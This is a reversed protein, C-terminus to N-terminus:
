RGDATDRQRATSRRRGTPQTSGREDGVTFADHVPQPTGLGAAAMIEALTEPIAGTIRWPDAVLDPDVTLGFDIRDEYSLVTFNTGSYASLISASYTGAVKAGSMYLPVPPGPVNAVITDAVVPARSSLQSAWVARSALNFLIPPAVEGMSRIATARVAHQMAKASQSSRHIARVREVPDEVDTAMSILTTAVLNTQETDGPQRTSLPAATVLPEAPLADLDRLAAVLGGACLAIVVDNIKVNLEKRVRKVDELAVSTFAVTRRAGLEGLFPIAPAHVPPTDERRLYSAMTVARRMTRLAYDVFRLPARATLVLSRVFLEVDSPMYGTPEWIVDPEPRAPPNAELDLLQDALSAGSVGDMLCHHYKAIIAVKGGAVGDVYWVEWLPSRRDLQYSMLHGFLEGMERAAGPPPVAIRRVHRGLDFHADDVWVPRDLQLPLEKLKMRYKPVQDLSRALLDRVAEFGGFAPADTPDLIM